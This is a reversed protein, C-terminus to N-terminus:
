GKWPEPIAESLYWEWYGRRRRTDGGNAEWTAAGAVAISALFCADWDLPDVTFESGGLGTPRPGALIDRAAAWAAFGAYVAPFYGEGLLLKNDLETRLDALGRRDSTREADLRHEFCQEAFLIPEADQPFRDLWISRVHRASKVQLQAWVHAFAQENSSLRRVLEKLRDRIPLPLDGNGTIAATAEGIAEHISGANM